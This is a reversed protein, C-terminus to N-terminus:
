PRPPRVPPNNPLCINPRCPQENRGSTVLEISPEDMSSGEISSEISQLASQRDSMDTMIEKM